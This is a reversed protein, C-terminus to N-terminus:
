NHGKNEELLAQERHATIKEACPRNATQRPTRRSINRATGSDSGSSERIWAM